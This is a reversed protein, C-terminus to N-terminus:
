PTFLRSKIYLIEVQVSIEERNWLFWRLKASYDYVLDSLYM